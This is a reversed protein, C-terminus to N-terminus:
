NNKYEYWKGNFFIFTPQMDPYIPNFAEGNKPERNYRNTFIDMALDERGDNVLKGVHSTDVSANSNNNSNSNDNSSSGNPNYEYDTFVIGNEIVNKKTANDYVSKPVTYTEGGRYLVYVYSGNNGNVLKFATGDEVQYNGIMETLKTIEDGFTSLVDGHTSSGDSTFYYITGETPLPNYNLLEDESLGGESSDDGLGGMLATQLDGKQTQSLSDYLATPNGESDLYGYNQLVRKISDQNGNQAYLTLTGILNDWSASSQNQQQQLQNYYDERERQAEQMALDNLDSNYNSEINEKSSLYSQYAENMANSFNNQNTQRANLHANNNQTLNTSLIGGQGGFGSAQLTKNTNALAREKAVGLAIDADYLEKYNQDKILDMYQNLNAMQEEKRKNAQERLENLISSYDPANPTITGGSNSNGSGIHNEFPNYYDEKKDENTSTTPKSSGGGGTSNMSFNFDKKPVAM